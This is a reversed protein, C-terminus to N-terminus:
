ATYCLFDWLHEPALPPPKPMDPPPRSLPFPPQGTGLTARELALVEAFTPATQPVLRDPPAPRRRGRLRVHATVTVWSFLGLLAPTTRAIAPASWSRQTEGGLHARVAQFTVEIQWRRLFWAVIAHPRCQPDTCLLAM